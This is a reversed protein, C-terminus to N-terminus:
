VKEYLKKLTLREPKELPFILSLDLNPDSSNQRFVRSKTGYYNKELEIGYALDSSGLQNFTEYVTGRIEPLPYYRNKLIVPMGIKIDKPEM